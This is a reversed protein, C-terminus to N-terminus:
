PVSGRKAALIHRLVGEYRETMRDVTFRERLRLAAQRGMEAAEDPHTLLYVIASALALPDSPPILWGSRGQEVAEPTGAVNTAVIPKALAMAELIAVSFGEVASPLCFVDAIDLLETADDRWGLFEVYASVALREALAKLDDLLPGHGVILFRCEPVRELVLPAARILTETGKRAELLGINCVVREDVRLGLARRKQAHDPARRLEDPNVGNHIVTVRELTVIGREVWRREVFASVAVYHDTWRALLKEVCWLPARVLLGTDDISACGHLSFIIVHTGNARGAARALAGAISSHAHVIDFRERRILRYLDWLGAVNILRLGRKMRVPVVRLGREIFRRDTPYGPGFAVTVEFREPDLPSVLSLVAQGLGGATTTLAHLIRIKRGDAKAASGRAEHGEIAPRIRDM